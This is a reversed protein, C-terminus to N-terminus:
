LLEKYLSLTEEVCRNWSFLACRQQGLQMMRKRLEDDYVIRSLQVVLEESSTPTFLLAADGVVEPISSTNSAVVPCGYDMAELLPFGFGEYFSPFALATANKYLTALIDDGGEYRIIKDAVQLKNFQEKEKKSFVSGGFCVVNFNKKLNPSLAFANLLCDFNKYSYRPGVFLFYPVSPLSINSDSLSSLDNYGLHITEVKCGDRLDYLDLLDNKTSESICILADARKFAKRKWAQTRDKPFLHPYREHTFDYVTLAVKARPL